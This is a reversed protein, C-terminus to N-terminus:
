SDARRFRPLASRPAKLCTRKGLLLVGRKQDFHTGLRQACERGSWRYAAKLKALLKQAFAFCGIKAIECTLRQEILALEPEEDLPIDLAAALVAAYDRPNKEFYHRLMERVSALRVLAAQKAFNQPKHLLGSPAVNAGGLGGAGGVQGEEDMWIMDEIVLLLVAMLEDTKYNGAELRSRFEKLVAGAKQMDGRAYDNIVGALLAQAKEIEEYGKGFVISNLFERRKRCQKASSKEQDEQPIKQMGEGQAARLVQEEEFASILPLSLAWERQSKGAEQPEQRQKSQSNEFAALAIPPLLKGSLAEIRRRNEVSAAYLARNLSEFFFQRQFSSMSELPNGAPFFTVLSLFPLLEREAEKSKEKQTTTSHAEM